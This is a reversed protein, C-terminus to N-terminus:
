KLLQYLEELDLSHQMLTAKAPHIKCYDDDDFNTPDGVQKIKKTPVMNRFTKMLFIRQLSFMVLTRGLRPHPFVPCGPIRPNPIRPGRLVTAVDVM